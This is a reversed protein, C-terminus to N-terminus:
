SPWPTRKTAKENLSKRLSASALSLSSRFPVAYHLVLDFFEMWKEILQYKESKIIAQLVFLSRDM